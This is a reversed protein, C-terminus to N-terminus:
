LHFFLDGEKSIFIKKNEEIGIKNLVGEMM